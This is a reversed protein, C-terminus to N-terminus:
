RGVPFYALIMTIVIMLSIILFIIMRGDIKSKKKNRGAMKTNRAM